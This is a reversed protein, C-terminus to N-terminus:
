SSRASGRPVPGGSPTRRRWPLVPLVPLVGAVVATLALVAPVQRLDETGDPDALLLAGAVLLSGVAVTGLVASRRSGALQSVMWLVALAALAFVGGILASGLVAAGVVAVGALVPALVGLLGTRRRPGGRGPRRAPLATLIGLVAVAGAGVALTQRYEAGPPFDLRVTGAPGAPLVYAQQWGDVTVKELEQGDLVATWGPNPNEPIVLLTPEERAAVDVVRHEANWRSVDAPTRVGSTEKISRGFRSLTVTAVALTDSSRSVV